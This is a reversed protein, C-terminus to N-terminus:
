CKVDQWNSSIDGYMVHQKDVNLKNSDLIAFGNCYNCILDINSKSATEGSYEDDDDYSM